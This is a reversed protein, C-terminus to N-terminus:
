GRIFSKALKCIQLAGGSIFRATSYTGIVSQNTHTNKEYLLIFVSRISSGCPMLYLLRPHSSLTCSTRLNNKIADDVCVGISGRVIM